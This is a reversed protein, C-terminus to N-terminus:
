ACARRLREALAQREEAGLFKAIESRKGHSVLFLRGVMERMEDYELEVRMWRRNFSRKSTRKATARILTVEDGEVTIQEHTGSTRNNIAFAAFILAVDLGLFGFVPWAGLRWFFAAIMLNSIVVTGLVVRLGFASLSRHPYLTINLTEAKTQTM